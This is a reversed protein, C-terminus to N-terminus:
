ECWIVSEWSITSHWLCILSLALASGGWLSGWAWWDNRGQKLFSQCYGGSEWWGQTRCCEMVRRRYRDTRRERRGSWHVRIVSFSQPGVHQLMHVFHMEGRIGSCKAKRDPLHGSLPIFRNVEMIISSVVRRTSFWAQGEFQAQTYFDTFNKLWIFESFTFFM